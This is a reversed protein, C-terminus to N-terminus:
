DICKLNELFYKEPFSEIGFKQDTLHEKLVYDLNLSDNVAIRMFNVPSNGIIKKADATILFAGGVSMLEEGTEELPYIKSCQNQDVYPLVAIKSNQVQLYLRSNATLCVSDNEVRNDIKTKTLNVFELSDNRTLSLEIYETMAGLNKFWVLYEKTLKLKLIDSDINAKYDCPPITDQAQSQFFIGLFLLGTIFIRM